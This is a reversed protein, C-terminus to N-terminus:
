PQLERLKQWSPWIEYAPNTPYLGHPDFLLRRRVVPGLDLLIDPLDDVFCDLGLSRARELKEARTLEFHIESQALLGRSHLHTTIWRQAAAHLDHEAGAYPARTKHSVVLLDWGFEQWYRLTDLVGPFPEAEEIRPGYAMGQLRIWDEERGCARLQDRIATKNPPSDEGVLDYEIALRQFLHDYCVLTNDFDLGIRM